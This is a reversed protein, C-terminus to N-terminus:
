YTKSNSALKRPQFELAEAPTWGIRLRGMIKFRSINTRRCWEALHLTEDGITIWHNNRKNKAQQWRDAWRVNLSWGNSLCQSCKGCCYHGNPDIRDISTKDVPMPGLDELFNAFSRLRECVTIGRGAYDKFKEPASPTVTRTIIRCWSAYTKTHRMGHTIFRTKFKEKHERGACGCSITQTGYRVHQAPCYFFSGCDCRFLWSAQHKDDNSMGLFGLAVLRGFRQGTLKRTRHLHIPKRFSPISTPDFIPM